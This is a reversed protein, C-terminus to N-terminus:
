QSAPPLHPHHEPYPPIPYTPAPNEQLLQMAKAIAAELQPDHGERMLKPDQVVEIDPPIGHGEVEWEGHLGGIAIHPSEVTGGDMLNPTGGIGVLGGWTRVGVLPGINAKRFYWPLADGGSGAYQNIVLVKPGYIALAPDLTVAGDRPVLEGFPKRNLLDIIYDAVQGGHNFREDIVAGKKDIQAFFYRNFNTFGGYETDPLYVYALKGGSLKDVLRRNDEIWANNRLAFENAVPTVTVQRADKGDPNPGVTLVVQMNATEEFFSYIDDSAHLPRGNVSLLYEGVKVNAGPQTLPAHLDPNWNEGNFIKSFRYRGNEIAYDAGLLGVTVHGTPPQTGGGIWMHGTALYSLMEHLLFSLDDRAALGALYPRFREEAQALNLGGFHKDYFYDREIRWTEHYMQAWEAQPTVYVEMNATALMGEGPHAAMATSTIFWRGGKAYLMKKGDFSLDFASVDEALPTVKRADLDFRAIALPAPGNTVQTIPAEVLFTAGDEGAALNIYNGEPVPLAIIRQLIGSFAISVNAPKKAANPSAAPKAGDTVPEEDSQPAIPSKVTDGLVAMYLNSSVPHQDSTMDLGGGATLGTNTSALFYLYKGSRDFVPNHSDSLGDTIQTARHDELSYVFVANLYNPLQKQYTIWRSDPSWTANFTNTGFTEFPTSDVKTPTPHELDIYWLNL